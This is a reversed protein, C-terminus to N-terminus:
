CAVNFTFFTMNRLVRLSRGLINTSVVKPMYYNVTRCSCQRVVLDRLQHVLPEVMHQHGDVGGHKWSM